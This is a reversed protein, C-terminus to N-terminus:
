SLIAWTGIATPGLIVTLALVRLLRRWAVPLPDDTGRPIAAWLLALVVFTVVAVVPVVYMWMIGLFLISDKPTPVCGWGLGECQGSPNHDPLVLFGILVFLTPLLVYGAFMTGLWGGWWVTARM